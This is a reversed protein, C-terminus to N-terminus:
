HNQSLLEILRQNFLSVGRQNLHHTDYFHLSDNLTMIENFNYYDGLDRMRRNFLTMDGLAEYENTTVPAFVLVVDCNSSRLKALIEEFKEFQDDKFASTKLISSTPHFYRLETQVFGGPIYIDRGHTIDEHNNEQIMQDLASYILTNYVKIHNIELAMKLSFLDNQDNSILDNASEVGDMAFTEPYVEYIVLKPTLADLYRELLVETQKPTQSSSGLNFVKTSDNEFLRTDFGRYAHSSGLFLIDLNKKDKVENLRSLLHGAGGRKYNLNPKLVQPMLNGWIVLLVTYGIAAFLSFKFVSSLFKKM